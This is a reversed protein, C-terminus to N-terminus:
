VYLGLLRRVLHTEYLGVVRLASMLLANWAGWANM